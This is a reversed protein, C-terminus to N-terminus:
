YIQFFFSYFIFYITCSGFKNSYQQPLTATTSSAVMAMPVTTDHNVTPSTSTAIAITNNDHSSIVSPSTESGQSTNTISGTVAANVFTTNNITSTVSSSTGSSTQKKNEM